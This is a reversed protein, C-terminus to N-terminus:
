SLTPCPQPSSVHLPADCPNPTLVVLEGKQVEAHLGKGFAKSYGLTPYILGSPPPSSVELLEGEVRATLLGLDYLRCEISLTANLPEEEEEEEGQGEEEGGASGITAGLRRAASLANWTAVRARPAGAEGAAQKAEEEEEMIELRAEQIAERQLELLPRMQERCKGLETQVDVLADCRDRIQTLQAVRWARAAKGSQGGFVQLTKRLQSLRPIPHSPLM